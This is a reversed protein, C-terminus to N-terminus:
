NDTPLILEIWKDSNKFNYDPPFNTFEREMRNKDRITLINIAIKMRKVSFKDPSIAYEMGEFKIDKGGTVNVIWGRDKHVGCTARKLDDSFINIGEARSGSAHLNFFVTDSVAIYLESVSKYYPMKYGLGIYLSGSNVLLHIEIDESIPFNCAGDWEGESFMGDIVIEKQKVEPVVISKSQTGCSVDTWKKHSATNQAGAELVVLWVVTFVALSKLVNM